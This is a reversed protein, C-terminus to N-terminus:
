PSLLWTGGAAGMGAPEPLLVNGDRSSTGRSLASGSIGLARGPSANWASTPSGQGAEGRAATPTGPTPTDELERPDSCADPFEPKTATKLTRLSGKLCQGPVFTSLRGPLPQKMPRSIALRLYPFQSGSLSLTSPVLASQQESAGYLFSPAKWLNPLSPFLPPGLGSAREPSIPTQMHHAKIVITTLWQFSQEADETGCVSM